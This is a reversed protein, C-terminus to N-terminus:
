AEVDGSGVITGKDDHTVQGALWITNGVKVAQSYGYEQEWSMGFGTTKKEIAM